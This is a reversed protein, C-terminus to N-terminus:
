REGSAIQFGTPRAAVPGPERPTSSTFAQTLSAPVLFGKRNWSTAHHTGLTEYSNNSGIDNSLKDFNRSCSLTRLFGGRAFWALLNNLCANVRQRDVRALVTRVGHQQRFNHFERDVTKSDTYPM